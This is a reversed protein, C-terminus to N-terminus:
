GVVRDVMASIVASALVAGLTTLPIIVSEMRLVRKDLEVHKDTERGLKVEYKEVTEGLKKELDEIEKSMDDIRGSENDTASEIRALRERVDQMQSSMKDTFDRFNEGLTKLQTGIEAFLRMEADRLRDMARDKDDM